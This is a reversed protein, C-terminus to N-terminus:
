VTLTAICTIRSYRGPLAQWTDGTDASYFLEGASTGFYVGPPDLSDVALADRLVNVYSPHEPLGSSVPHWTEGGDRSRYLRLKGGPMHREHMSALPAVFLDGRRTVALPFGFTSPLGQGIPHWSDGGDHSRFLGLLHQFYLTNADRPDAVLKHNFRAGEVGQPLGRSCEHWTAGGDYTRFIGAGSIAVWMRRADAPDLLISHLAFGGRSRQWEVRSPHRNLSEMQAWSSGDDHSVFLGADEVGAYYTREGAGAVIKWIRMVTAGSAESFRPSGGIQTWTEGLTQSGHHPPADSAQISPGYAPQTTGAFVRTAGDPRVVALLSSVEWGSLHPGTRCWERREADSFFLFAGNNTGVFVVVQRDVNAM